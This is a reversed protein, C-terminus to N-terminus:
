TRLTDTPVDTPEQVTGSEGEGLGLEEDTLYCRPDEAWLDGNEAVARARSNGGCVEKFPCEGCRGELHRSPEALKSWVDSDELVAELPRERINGMTITPLFMSPHVDGRYDINVVKPGGDGKKVVRGPGDEFLLERARDAREPLERQIKRYLYVADAYNGASLLQMGPDTEALELTREFLYDVMERTREFPLDTDTITGGRGTYILHFVNLRDVELDVALDVLDPLDAITERTMTSRIGTSMGADQANEIGELAAEFSGEKGRFEDHTDGVGDLSVGVYAMGADAVAEAREPTLYTGNSSAITRMGQRDAYAALEAIDERVFPEGGSFVLVPVNAAALDDIFAKAEATSLEEDSRSDVAGFYCHQCRLNCAPTTNWVVLPVLPSDDGEDQSQDGREGDEGGGFTREYKMGEPRNDIGNVFRTLDIM